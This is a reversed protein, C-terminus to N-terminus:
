RCPPDRDSPSCSSITRACTQSRKRASLSHSLFCRRRQPDVALRAAGIWAVPCRPNLSCLAFRQQKAKPVLADRASSSHVAGSPTPRRASSGGAAADGLRLSLTIAITGTTKPRARRERDRHRPRHPQRPMRHSRRNPRHITARRAQYARRLDLVLDARGDRVLSREGKTLLDRVVVTVLDASFSTRAKTPGRGTDESILRRCPQRDGTGVSRNRDSRLHPQGDGAGNEGGEQLGLRAFSPLLRIFDAPRSAQGLGRRQRRAAPGVHRLTDCPWRADALCHEPPGCV